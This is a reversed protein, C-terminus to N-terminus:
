LILITLFSILFILRITFDFLSTVIDAGIKVLSRVM